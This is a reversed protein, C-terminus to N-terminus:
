PEPVEPLDDEALTEAREFVGAFAAEFEDADMGQRLLFTPALVVGDYVPFQRFEDRGSYQTIAFAALTLVALVGSIAQSLRPPLRTSLLLVLYAYVALLGASFLMEVEDRGPADPLNYFLIDLLPSFSGTIIASIITINLLVVFRSEHRLVRAVFSWFAGVVISVTLGALATGLYDDPNLERGDSNLYLVLCPLAALTALLLVMLPVSNFGLLVHELDRLSRAPPVTHEPRFIRIRTKGCTLEDGSRIAAARVGQRGRMTGNESGLDIIQWGDPDTVDLALHHADLYPDDIIIDNDLARGIRIYQKAPREFRRTKGEIGIIEIVVM